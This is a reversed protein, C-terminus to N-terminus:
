YAPHAATERQIAFGKRCYLEPPYLRLTGAAAERDLGRAICLNEKAREISELTIRRLSDANFLVSAKEFHGPRDVVVDRLDVTPFAFSITVSHKDIRGASLEGSASVVRFHAPVPALTLTPKLSGSLTTTFTLTDTFEGKAGGFETLEVFSHVAKTMGIAADRRLHGRAKPPGKAICGPEPEVKLSSM